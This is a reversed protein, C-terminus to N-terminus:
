PDMTSDANCHIHLTHQITAWRGVTLGAGFSYGFDVPILQGTRLVLMINGLHRDGVGCVYGCVSMAALSRCPCGAPCTRPPYTMEALPSSMLVGLQKQAALPKSSWCCAGCRHHPHHTVGPCEHECHTTSAVPWSCRQAAQPQCCPAACPWPPSTHSLEPWLQPRRRVPCRLPTPPCCLDLHEFVTASVDYATGRSSTLRLGALCSRV